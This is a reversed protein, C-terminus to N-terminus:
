ITATRSLINKTGAVTAAGRLVETVGGVINVVSVESSFWQWGTCELPILQGLVLTPFVANACHGSPAEPLKWKWCQIGKEFWYLSKMIPCQRQLYQQMANCLHELGISDLSDQGQAIDNMTAPSISLCLLYIRLRLPLTYNVFNVISLVWGLMRICNFLSCKTNFM